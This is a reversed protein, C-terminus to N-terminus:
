PRGWKAATERLKDLADRLKELVSAIANQGQALNAIGHRTETALRITESSQEGLADGLKDVAERIQQSAATSATHATKQDALASLVRELLVSNERHLGQVLKFMYVIVGALLAIAGTQGHEKLLAAIDLTTVRNPAVETGDLAIKRIAM